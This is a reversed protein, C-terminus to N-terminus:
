PPLPHYLAFLVSVLVLVIGFIGRIFRGAFELKEWKNLSGRKLEDQHGALSLSGDMINWMEGLAMCVVGIEYLM